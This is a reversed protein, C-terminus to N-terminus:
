IKLDKPFITKITKGFDIENWSDINFQLLVVGTTPLNTIFESGMQSAILSFTPNHGFLVLNGVSDSCSKIVNFTNEGSFDYLKPEIFSDVKSWNLTEVFVQATLKARLAPSVLILDPTFYYAPKLMEASVLKADSLGRKKLPRELDTVQPEWLSKSHRILTLYKM